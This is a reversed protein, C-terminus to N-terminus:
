PASFRERVNCDDAPAAEVVKQFVGLGDRHGGRVAFRRIGHGQTDHRAPADGKQRPVATIVLERRM